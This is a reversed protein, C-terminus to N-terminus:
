DKFVVNDCFKCCFAEPSCSSVCSLLLARESGPGLSAGGACLSSATGAAAPPRPARGAGPGACGCRGPPAAARVKTLDIGSGVIPLGDEDMGAPRPPRLGSGLEAASRLRPGSVFGLAAPRPQM